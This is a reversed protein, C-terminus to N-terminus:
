FIFLVKTFKYQKDRVLKLSIKIHRFKKFSSNENVNKVLKEKM